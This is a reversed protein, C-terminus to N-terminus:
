KEPATTYIIKIGPKLKIKSARFNINAASPVIPLGGAKGIM